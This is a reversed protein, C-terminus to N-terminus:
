FFRTKEASHALTSSEVSRLTSGGRQLVSDQYVGEPFTIKTAARGAMRCNSQNHTPQSTSVCAKVEKSLNALDLLNGNAYLQYYRGLALGYGIWPGFWVQVQEVIVSADQPHIPLRPLVIHSAKTM